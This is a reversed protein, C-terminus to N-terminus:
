LGAGVAPRKHVTVAVGGFFMTDVVVLQNPSKELARVDCAMRWADLGLRRDFLTKSICSVRSQKARVVEPHDDKGRLM